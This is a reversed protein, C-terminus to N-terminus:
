NFAGQDVYPYALFDGLKNGEADYHLMRFCKDCFLCPVSPAFQDNVTIWRSFILYSTLNHTNPELLFNQPLM